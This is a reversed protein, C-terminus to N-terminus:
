WRSIRANVSNRVRRFRPYHKRKPVSEGETGKKKESGDFVSKPHFFFIDNRPAFCRLLRTPMAYFESSIAASGATARSSTNKGSPPQAAHEEPHQRLIRVVRAPILGHFVYERRAPIGRGITVTTEILERPRERSERLRPAVSNPDCARGEVRKSIM